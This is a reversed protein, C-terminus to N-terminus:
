IFSRRPRMPFPPPGRMVWPDMADFEPWDEPLRKAQANTWWLQSMRARRALPPALPAAPYTGFAAPDVAAACFFRKVALWLLFSGVVPSAAVALFLVLKPWCRNKVFCTVHFFKPCVKKCSAAGDAKETTANNNFIYVEKTDLIDGISDYLTVWCSSSNRNWASEYIFLDLPPEVAVEQGAAVLDLTRTPIPQMKMSCNTVTLVYGASVSGTNIVNIFIFGRIGSEFGGCSTNGFRCVRLGTVQGPSRDLALQVDDAAVSLTMVLASTAVPLAFNVNDSAKVKMLEAKDGGNFQTVMYRPVANSKMLLEDSEFRDKLQNGLCTDMASRCAQDQNRFASYSTGIKDCTRGDLSTMNKEIIMWYTRNFSRVKAITDNLMQVPLGPRGPLMLLRNSLDPPQQMTTTLNDTLTASVSGSSSTARTASSSLDLTEFRTTIANAGPSTRPNTTTTTKAASPIGLRVNINFQLEPPGVEYASYWLEDYELCHAGGRQCSVGARIRERWTDPNLRLAHDCKCCFGQSDQVREGSRSTAWGCTPNPENRGDQVYKCPNEPAVVKYVEIPKWNFDQLHKLPYSAVFSKTLTLQIAPARLNRCTCSPDTAADCTCPCVGDSSNVCRITFDLNHEAGVIEDNPSTLNVVVINNSTCTNDVM